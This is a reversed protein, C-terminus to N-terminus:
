TAGNSARTSRSPRATVPSPRTSRARPGSRMAWTPTPALSSRILISPRAPCAIAEDVEGKDRLVVGLADTFEAQEPALEIAKRFSAIAEDWQRKRWQAAGLHYYGDFHKPDLDIATRFCAIAQDLHGQQELVLGLNFHPGSDHPRAAVAERDIALAREFFPGAEAARGREQLHTGLCALHLTVEPRRRVLDRFIAEAEEGRGRRQLAHAMEHSLEPRIARTASYAAIAEDHRPPTMRELQMGLVYQVWADTPYVGSARRLVRVAADVDGASAVTTGLLVLSAPLWDASMAQEVLPRVQELLEAKDEVALAARLRDRVPDPDAARAVAVLRPWGAHRPGRKWRRVATWHDLGAVVARRVPEPRAAIRAALQQVDDEDVDFGAERFALSYAADTSSVGSTGGFGSRIDILEEVLVRDREAAEAAAQVEGDLAALQARSAPEGVEALATQARKLAELAARWRAVDAPHTVAQDRLLTAEQLALALRAAAAQREQLWYALGLGGVVMAVFVAAAMGAVAPNRRVWRVCREPLGMRRALVPEGAVFRQLDAGLDDASQYRGRPDKDIAKLVITELDRPVKRDLSRPSVPEERRIQEIVQLRDAAAFAPKLTLLEYLTLGLAYLDSRVDCKGRFREPAMYRVTGVVEGTATMDVDGTKALGFDTVWVVGATDLLLNSPKIDRHVVGRAHAYALASAAQQAIQAVSRHYARRNDLASTLDSQGPLVASTSACAGPDPNKENSDAADGALETEALNATAFRGLVLSAAINSASRAGASLQRLRRLEDIVLDLGQGQIMQMVYFVRGDDEGVDFVPVINSHHLRAAARAERDFRARARADGALGCPLVKLAVRRGLAEHEAEYVVGMGGRGIERIIRYGGLSEPVAHDVPPGAAAAARGVASGAQEMEILAPFLAHIEGALEPHAVAIEELSPREGARFRMLFSEALQEIPDRESSPDAM